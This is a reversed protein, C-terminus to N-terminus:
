RPCKCKTNCRAHSDVRWKHGCKACRQWRAEQCQCDLFQDSVGQKCVKCETDPVVIPKYKKNADIIWQPVGDYENGEKKARKPPPEAAVVEPQQEEDEASPARFEALWGQIVTQQAEGMGACQWKRRGKGDIGLNMLEALAKDEYAGWWGRVISKDECDKRKLPNPVWRGGAEKIDQKADFSSDGKFPPGELVYEKASEVHWAGNTPKDKLWKMFETPEKPVPAQPPPADDEDSPPKFPKPKPTLKGTFAGKLSRNPKPKDSSTPPKLKFM